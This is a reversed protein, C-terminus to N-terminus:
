RQSAWEVAVRMLEPVNKVHLKEKLHVRHTEVTSTSIHLQKAIQGTTRGQGILELVELERDTLHGMPVWSEPAKRDVFERLMQDRVSQSVFLEGKVVTRIAELITKSDERKMVYGLAGARLAREAYLSEEHMSLVLMPLRPHMAKLTKILELGSSGQLSIDVVVLDPKLRGVGDLARGATSAQGCVQLDPKSNIIEAFGERLIAHDDVLMVRHKRGKTGANKRAIM